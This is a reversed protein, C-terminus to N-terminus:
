IEDMVDDLGIPTVKCRKLVDIIETIRDQNSCINERHNHEVKVDKGEYEKKIIEVGYQEKNENLINDCKKTTYYELEIKRNNKTEKMDEDDLSIGGYYIRSSEM